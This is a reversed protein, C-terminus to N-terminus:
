GHGPPSEVQVALRSVQDAGLGYKSSMPSHGGGALYGGGVGVTSCLGGIATVQYKEAAEYLEFVQFGSGIKFALGSYAESQYNDYYVLDKFGHTWLSLSGAGASRGNFDHGTNKIILRLNLNRAFNIALQIQAVSTVNVQLISIIPLCSKRSEHPRSTGVASVIYDPYAGLTCNETLADATPLCTAGEWLPFM